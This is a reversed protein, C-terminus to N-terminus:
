FLKTDTVDYSFRTFFSSEHGSTYGEKLKRIIYGFADDMFYDNDVSEIEITIVRKYQMPTPEEPSENNPEGKAKFTDRTM